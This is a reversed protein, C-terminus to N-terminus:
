PSCDSDPPSTAPGEQGAHLVTDLDCGITDCLRFLLGNLRYALKMRQMDIDILAESLTLRTRRATLDNGNITALQHKISQKTERTDRAFADWDAQASTLADCLAGVTLEVHHLTQVEQREISGLRSTLAQRSAGDFWAGMPLSVGAYVSWEDRTQGNVADDVGYDLSAFSLWPIREARHARLDNQIASKALRVTHVATNRARAFAKLRSPDLSRFDVRPPTLNGAFRLQASKDLGARAKLTSSAGAIARRLETMRSLYILSETQRKHYDGSGIAAAAKLTALEAQDERLLKARRQKMQMEALMFQIERHERAVSLAARHLAAELMQEAHDRTARLRDRAARRIFPHRPFIRLQVSYSSSGGYVDRGYRRFEDSHRVVRRTSTGTEQQGVTGVSESQQSFTSTNVETVTEHVTEGDRGPTVTTVTELTTAETEADSETITSVQAGETQTLSSNGTSSSHITERSTETYSSPLSWDASEGYRMRLEPDRGRDAMAIRYDADSIARRLAELSPDNRIVLEVLEHLDVRQGAPITADDVPGDAASWLCTPLTLLVGLLLPLLTRHHRATTTRM